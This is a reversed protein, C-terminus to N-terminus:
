GHFGALLPYTRIRNRTKPPPCFTSLPFTTVGPLSISGLRFKYSLNGTSSICGFHNKVQAQAQWQILMSTETRNFGNDTTANVETIHSEGENTTTNVETFNLRM